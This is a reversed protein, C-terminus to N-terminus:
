KDMRWVDAWGRGFPAKCFGLFNPPWPWRGGSRYSGEYLFNLDDKRTTGRMSFGHYGKTRSDGHFGRLVLFFSGAALAASEKKNNVAM